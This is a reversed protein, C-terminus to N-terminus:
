SPFATIILCLSTFLFHKTADALPSKIIVIFFCCLADTKVFSDAETLSTYVLARLLIEQITKRM